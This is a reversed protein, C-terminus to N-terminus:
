SVSSARTAGIIRERLKVVLRRIEEPKRRRGRRITRQRRGRKDERIWRLLTDPTVITALHRLANGLKAAFRVLRRREAPLINLRKPLSGRLIQNEVKLYQIQRVLERHTASAFICLLRQFLSTM